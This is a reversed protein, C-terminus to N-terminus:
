ALLYGFIADGVNMGTQVVTENATERAEKIARILVDVRVLLKEKEPAPMAGSHKVANWYGAVVDEGVMQTQAPHEATAPYLVIPKAIKKTRHTQIQATKFIGLNPDMIWDESSDLVPLNKIFTRMDTLQKELFLLNSVPMMPLVPEGNVVVDAYASCNSIDKKATIDLLPTLIKAAEAVADKAIVQVKKREAPLEEDTEDKKQYQKVFGNFLDPKQVIKYLESLKSHTEAKIGKEVAIVQNLKM